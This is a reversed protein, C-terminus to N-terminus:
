VAPLTLLAPPHSRRINWSTGPSGRSLRHLGSEPPSAWKGTAKQNRDTRAAEDFYPRALWPPDKQELHRNGVIYKTFHYIPSLSTQSM